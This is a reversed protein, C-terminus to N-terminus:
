SQYSATLCFCSNGPDQEAKFRKAPSAKPTQVKVAELASAYHKELANIQEVFEDRTTTDVHGQLVRELFGQQLDIIKLLRKRELGHECSTDKPTSPAPRAEAQPFM